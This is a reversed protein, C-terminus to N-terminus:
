NAESGAPYYQEYGAPSTDHGSSFEGNQGYQVSGSTFQGTILEGGGASADDQCSWGQGDYPGHSGCAAQDAYYDWAGACSEAHLQAASKPKESHRSQKAYGFETNDTNFVGRRIGRQLHQALKNEWLSQTLVTEPRAMWYCVFDRVEDSLIHPDLKELLLGRIQCSQLFSEQVEWDAFMVFRPRTDGGPDPFDDERACARTSSPESVPEFSHCTRPSVTDGEGGSVTDGEGSLNDGEQFPPTLNDGERDSAEPTQAQKDGGDSDSGSSFEQGETFKLTYLNSQNVFNNRKREEIQVFGAEELDKLHRRVTRTSMECQDAIHQISPWCVGSDNANDSLKILVLKRSPNKVKCSLAKVMWILSM